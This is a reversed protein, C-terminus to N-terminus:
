ERGLEYDEVFGHHVKDRSEATATYLPSLDMNSGENRQFGEQMTLHVGNTLIDSMCPGLPHDGMLDRTEQADGHGRRYAVGKLHIWALLDPAEHRLSATRRLEAINFRKFEFGDPKPLGGLRNNHYVKLEEALGPPEISGVWKDFTPDSHDHDQDGTHQDAAEAVRDFWPFTDIEWTPSHKLSIGPDFTTIPRPYPMVDPVSLPLNVLEPQQTKDGSTVADSDDDM